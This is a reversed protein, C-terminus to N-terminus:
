IPLLLKVVFYGNNEEFRINGDLREVSQRIIDIGMGHHERDKKSTKLEPNSELVSKSIRNAIEISLYGGKEHMHLKISPETEKVSAEIANDLLNFLVSCLVKQDIEMNESLLVDAVLPINNQRAERIKYTLLMDMFKNGTSIIEEKEMQQFIDRKLIIKLEEYKQQEAMSYILFYNNKLEHREKRTTEMQDRFNDMQRIQFALSQNSYQLEMQTQLEYVMKTFLFYIVDELIILMIQFLRMNEGSSVSYCIQWLIMCLFPTIYMVIWYINPLSVTIPETMKWYIIAVLCLIVATGLSDLSVNDLGLQLMSFRFIGKACMANLVSFLNLGIMQRRNGEIFLLAFATLITLLIVIYGFFQVESAHKLEIQSIFWLLTMNLVEFLAAFGAVVFVIYKKKLQTHFCSLLLIESIVCEMLGDLDFWRYIFETM